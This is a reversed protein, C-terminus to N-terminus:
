RMLLGGNADWTAGTVYGADDGCMWSIINAIEELRGLRKVPISGVIRELMEAPASRALEGDLPGPAICNVTVGHSALERAFLKTLVAIGAKSAAYHAGTGSGGSQGALSGLNIIRGRGRAKMAAGFLQMALFTGRLNVALVDNFEDPTIDWISTMRTVAANNVLVDIDGWQQTVLEYVALLSEKSSIDVSVAFATECACDLSKAVASAAAADIDAIVLQYGDAHLRRAIAEGLGRGAGTM